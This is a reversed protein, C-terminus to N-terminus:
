LRHRRNAAISMLNLSTLRSKLIALLPRRKASTINQSHLRRRVTDDALIKVSKRYLACYAIWEDYAERAMTPFPLILQKLEARFAFTCGYFPLTKMFLGWRARLYHQDLDASSADARNDASSASIAGTSGVGGAGEDGAGARFRFRAGYEEGEGFVTYNSVLLLKESAILAELMQQARGKIWIDDQDSLFIIDGTARKIATEFASAVGRRQPSRYIDLTIGEVSGLVEEVVAVTGDTSADDVVVIEFELAGKEEVISELQEAIFEQGNYTAICVSVKM